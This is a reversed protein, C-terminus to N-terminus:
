KQSEGNHGNSPTVSENNSLMEEYAYADRFGDFYMQSSGNKSEKANTQDSWGKRYESECYELYSAAVANLVEIM